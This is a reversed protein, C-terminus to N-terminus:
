EVNQLQERLSELEGKMSIVRRTIELDNAKSGITNTERGLEQVIFELTRGVAGDSTLTAQFQALHSRFRTVEETIDSRDAFVAVETALRADDVPVPDTLEKVRRTLRAQHERVVQPARAEVAAIEGGLRETRRLLDAALRAGETERMAILRELATQVGGAVAPWLAEPDEKEEEIKILDPLNILDALDLTGSLSLARKLDNLARVYETALDLDTKVTRPRKGQNERIIAVEVRGRLVSAQILSRIRDELVALDRPTRVSIECFRHNVSRVEVILRGTPSSIEGTGFGTM